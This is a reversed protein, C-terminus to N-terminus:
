DQINMPLVSTSVSVGISQGVSTFLQSMQLSGLAPFLNFAPLSPSSLILHNSPMMSGTCLLRFLSQLQHHGPFGPTSCSMPDCVTPCSQSVASFQQM